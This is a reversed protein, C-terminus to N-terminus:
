LLGKVCVNPLTLISDQCTDIMVMGMHMDSMDIKM